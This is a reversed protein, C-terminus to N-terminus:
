HDHRAGTKPGTATVKDSPAPAASKDAGSTAGSHPWPLKEGAARGFPNLPKETIQFWHRRTSTERFVALKREQYHKPAGELVWPRLAAVLKALADRVESETRAAQALKTAAVADDLVFALKTDKYRPWLLDRVAIAPDLQRATVDYGDILAEHLYLAADVLHDIMAFESKTPKLLSLPLQARELKRFSERLASESDILFQGSVVVAEGESVGRRVETWRGATMGPEISRPEFRGEGLSVIVFHGQGSKLIAESPVAVRMQADVEFVVDAYSGPRIKGDANDLVLRVQGTRTANDITPYIYDVKANATRGPLNPFTVVAQGNKNILGLDRETVGVRLWVSKYNQIKALLMGRKVYTGPKLFIESITGAQEAYFPVFEMPTKRKAIEALARPQVGFARLQALGRQLGGREGRATLYDNQSVILQPSYLSYLLDGQKVEDGVARIRLNEVWGEVRATIESRLRENEHVIGYSRVQRGFRSKEAKGLRVGMNQITEPAITVIARTEAPGAAGMSGGTELKVLDMGCIPCAGFADAIYHPHMPCTWKTTAQPKASSTVPAAAHATGVILRGIASVYSTASNSGYSTGTRSEPSPLTASLVAASVLTVAAVTRHSSHACRKCM